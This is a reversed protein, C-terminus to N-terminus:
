RIIRADEVLELAKRSTILISEGRQESIINVWEVMVNMVSADETVRDVPTYEEINMPPFSKLIYPLYMYGVKLFDEGTIGERFFKFKKLKGIEIQKEAGTIQLEAYYRNDVMHNAYRSSLPHMPTFQGRLEEELLASLGAEADFSGFGRLESIMEAAWETRVARSSGWVSIGTTNYLFQFERLSGFKM